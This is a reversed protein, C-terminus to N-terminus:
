DVRKVSKNDEDYEYQKVEGNEIVTVQTCFMNGLHAGNLMAKEVAELNDYAVLFGLGTHGEYDFMLLDGNIEEEGSLEYRREFNHVDFSDDNMDKDSIEDNVGVFFVCKDLHEHDTKDGEWNGDKIILDKVEKWKM